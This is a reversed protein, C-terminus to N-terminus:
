GATVPPAGGPRPWAVCRSTSMTYHPKILRHRPSATTTCSPLDMNLLNPCQAMNIPLAPPFLSPFPPVSFFM